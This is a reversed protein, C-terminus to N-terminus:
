CVCVSLCVFVCAPLFVYCPFFFSSHQDHSMNHDKSDLVFMSLSWWRHFEDVYVHICLVCMSVINHM